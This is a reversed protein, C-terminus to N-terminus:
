EGRRTGDNNYGDAHNSHAQVGAADYIRRGAKILVKSLNVMENADRYKRCLDRYREACIKLGDQASRLEDEKRAVSNASDFLATDARVRTYVSFLTDWAPQLAWYAAEISSRDSGFARVFDGICRVVTDRLENARQQPTNSISCDTTEM